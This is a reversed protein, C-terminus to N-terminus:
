LGKKLATAGCYLVICICQLLCDPCCQAQGFNNGKNSESLRSPDPVWDHGCIRRVGSLNSCPNEALVGWRDLWKLWGQNVFRFSCLFFVCFLPGMAFRRVVENFESVALWCLILAFRSKDVSQFAYNEGWYGGEKLILVAFLMLDRGSIWLWLYYLNEIEALGGPSPNEMNDWTEPM